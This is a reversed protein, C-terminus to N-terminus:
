CGTQLSLVWNPFKAGLECHAGMLDDLRRKKPPAEAAAAAAAPTCSAAAGEAAGALFYSQIVCWHPSRCMCSRPPSEQKSVLATDGACFTRM